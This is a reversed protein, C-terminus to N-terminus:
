PSSEPERPSRCGAANNREDMILNGKILRILRPARSAAEPDHTVLIITKGFEGNLRCLLDLVERASTRDLDGTPEDASILTPDTVLARAIAVRQQQGGSLQSPYHHSRDELGVLKLAVEVHERRERRSLPTLLLPLEVNEFATLVPILQYFQFIFGVHRARWAALQGESLQTLDVGGVTLVGSDPHDLGAILNLLTTKGSGSPGMLALFEGEAIDLSIDELVPVRQNGRRYSKYLHEIVVLPPRSVYEPNVATM